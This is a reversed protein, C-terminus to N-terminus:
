TENEKRYVSGSTWDVDLSEPLEHKQQVVRWAANYATQLMKAIVQRKFSEAQAETAAAVAEDMFTKQIKLSKFDEESLDTIFRAALEDAPDPIAPRTTSNEVPFDTDKPKIPVDTM